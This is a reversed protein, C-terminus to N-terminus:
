TFLIQLQSYPQGFRSERLEGLNFSLGELKLLPQLNNHALELLGASWLSALDAPLHQVTLM